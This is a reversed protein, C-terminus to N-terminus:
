STIGFSGENNDVKNREGLRAWFTISDVLRQQSTCLDMFSPQHQSCGTARHQQEPVSDYATPVSLYVLCVLCSTVAHIGVTMVIIVVMLFVIIVIMIIISMITFTIISIVIIVWSM